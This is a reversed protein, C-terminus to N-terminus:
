VKNKKYIEICGKSIIKLPKIFNPVCGCPRKIFVNRMGLVCLQTTPMQLVRVTTRRQRQLPFGFFCGNSGSPGVRQGKSVAATLPYLPMIVGVKLGESDMRSVKLM